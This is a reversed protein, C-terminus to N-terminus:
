LTKNMANVIKFIGLEHDKLRFSLHLMVRVTSYYKSYRKLPTAPCRANEETIGSM